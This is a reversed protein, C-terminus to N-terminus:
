SCCVCVCMAVVFVRWCLLCLVALRVLARKAPEPPLLPTEPRTEELYHIIAGSQNLTLGDILLTPVEKMPNKEAYDDKLQEGGDKLLHVPAYRYSVKKFNLALRVRWSSSSRWYSYLLVDDGPGVSAM